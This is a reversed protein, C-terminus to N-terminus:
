SLTKFKKSRKLNQLFPNVKMGYSKLKSNNLGLIKVMNYDKFDNCSTKKVLEENFGFEKAMLICMEYRSLYDDGSINIVDNRSYLYPIASLILAADEVYIPNRYQDYFANVPDNESLKKYVVDYFSTYSSITFGYILSMRMILFKEANSSIKKEGELKTEAYITLPNLPGDETINKNEKYVLDTSTYVLLSSLESCLKAILETVEVNFKRVYINDKNGIRTPTVSALHYVIEPKIEMMIKILKGSDTLDCKIYNIGNLRIPHTNYIGTISIGPKDLFLRCLYPALYGSSGTVLIKKM